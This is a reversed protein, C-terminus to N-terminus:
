IVKIKISDLIKEAIPLYTAYYNPDFHFEYNLLYNNKKDIAFLNLSGMSNEFSSKSYKSLIGVAPNGDIMYKGFQKELIKFNNYKKIMENELRETILLAYSNQDFLQSRKESKKEEISLISFSIQLNITTDNHLLLLDSLSNSNKSKGGTEIIWDETDPIKLIFLGKSDHYDMWKINEPNFYHIYELNSPLFLPIFILFVFQKKIM